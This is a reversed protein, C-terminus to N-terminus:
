AVVGRGVLGGRAAVGLLRDEDPDGPTPERRDDRFEIVWRTERTPLDSVGATLTREILSGDVMLTITGRTGKAFAPVDVVIAGGELRARLTRLREGSEDRVEAWAATPLRFRMAGSSGDTNGM